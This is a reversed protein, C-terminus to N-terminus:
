PITTDHRLHHEAVQIKRDSLHIQWIQYGPTVSWRVFRVEHEVTTEPDTWYTRM